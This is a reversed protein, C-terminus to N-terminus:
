RRFWARKAEPAPRTVGPRVEGSGRAELQPTLVVKQPPGARGELRQLLVEAARTALEPPSCSVSTLPMRLLDADPVEGLAVLGMGSGALVRSAAVALRGGGVVIATPPSPAALWERAAAQAGAPDHVATRVLEPDAALGSAALARQYGELQRGTGDAEPRQGLFAIRRHWHRLLHQTALRAAEQEDVLVCDANMQAAPHLLFVATLGGRLYPILYRHDAAESILFVGMAGGEVLSHVLEAEREASGYAPTLLLSYGRAYVAGALGAALGARDPDDLEPVLLCLTRARPRSGTRLQRAAENREFGLQTIAARVRATTAAAVGREGNLVRSVTKASVRAVRAVDWLTPRRARSTM